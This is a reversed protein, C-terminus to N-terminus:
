GGPAPRVIEIADGPNIATGAWESRPVVVGNIAIALFRAGPDVDESALLEAM